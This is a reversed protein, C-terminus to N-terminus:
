GKKIEVIEQYSLEKNKRGDIVKDLLEKIGNCDENKLMWCDWHGYKCEYGFIYKIALWIRVFINHYQYLQVETYLENEDPDYVFRITHDSCECQCEYYSTQLKEM